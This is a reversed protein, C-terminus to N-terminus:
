EEYWEQSQKIHQWIKKLKHIVLLGLPYIILLGVILYIWLEDDTM